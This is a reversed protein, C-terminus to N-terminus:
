LQPAGCQVGEVYVKYINYSRINDTTKYIITKYISMNTKITQSVYTRFCFSFFMPVLGQPPRSKKIMTTKSNSDPIFM